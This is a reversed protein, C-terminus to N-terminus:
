FLKDNSNRWLWVAVINVRRYTVFSSSVTAYLLISTRIRKYLVGMM